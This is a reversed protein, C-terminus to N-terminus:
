YVGISLMVLTCAETVEIGKAQALAELEPNETGPNFIIRRPKLNLIYNYLPLQHAPNLYLTITDISDISPQGTLIEVGNIAGKTKGLAVVEHQHQLLSNVAMNSYRSTNESAGIVLTKM